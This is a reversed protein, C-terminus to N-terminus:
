HLHGTSGLRYVEERLASTNKGTLLWNSFILIVWMRLQGLVGGSSSISVHSAQNLVYIAFCGMVVALMRNIM